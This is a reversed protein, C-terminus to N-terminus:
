NKHNSSSEDGTSLPTKVVKENSAFATLTTDKLTSPLKGDNVPIQQTTSISNPRGRSRNNGNSTETTTINDSGKRGRGRGIELSLM